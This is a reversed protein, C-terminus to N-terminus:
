LAVKRVLRGTRINSTVLEITTGLHRDLKNDCVLVVHFHLGLEGVHWSLSVNVVSRDQQGVDVSPRTGDTDVFPAAMVLGLTHTHSDAM